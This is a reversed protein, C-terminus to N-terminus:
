SAEGVGERRWLRTVTTGDGSLEGNWDTPQAAFADVHEQCLSAESGGWLVPEAIAARDCGDVVCITETPM